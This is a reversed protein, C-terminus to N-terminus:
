WDKWYDDNKRSKKRLEYNNEIEEKKTSLGKFAESFAEKIDMEKSYNLIVFKKLTSRILESRSIDRNKAIADFSALVDKECRFQVLIKAERKM